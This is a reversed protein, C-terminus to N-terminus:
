STPPDQGLFDTLDYYMFPEAGPMPQRGIYVYVEGLRTPMRVNEFQDLEVDAYRRLMLFMQRVEDVSM